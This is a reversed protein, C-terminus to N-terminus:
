TTSTERRSRFNREQIREEPSFVRKKNKPLLGEFKSVVDSVNGSNDDDATDYNEDDGMMSEDDGFIFESLGPILSNKRPKPIKLFSSSDYEKKAADAAKKRLKKAQNKTLPTSPPLGPIQSSITISVNKAPPSLVSPDPLAVPQIKEPTSAEDVKDVMEKDDNPNDSDTKVPSYLNSLGRCFIKNGHFVTGNIRDVISICKENELNVVEVSAKGNIRNTKIDIVNDEDLDEGALLKLILTDPVAEPINKVIVGTFRKKEEKSLETKKSAPSFKGSEKVPM